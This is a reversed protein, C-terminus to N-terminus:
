KRFLDIEWIATERDGGAAILGGERFALTRPWGTYDIEITRHHARKELDWLFIRQDRFWHNDPQDGHVTALWEGDPSIACTDYPAITEKEGVLPTIGDITPRFDRGVLVVEKSHPRFAAGIAVPMRTSARTSLDMRTTGHADLVLMENDRVVVWLPNAPLVLHGVRAGNLDVISGDLALLRDGSLTTRLDISAFSSRTKGTAIDFITTQKPDKAAVWGEGVFYSTGIAVPVTWARMWTRTDYAGLIHHEFDKRGAVLLVGQTFHHWWSVGDFVRTPGM